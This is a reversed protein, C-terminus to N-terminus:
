WIRWTVGPVSEIEAENSFVGRIETNDSFLASALLLDPRYPMNEIPRATPHRFGTMWSQLGPFVPYELTGVHLGSVFYKLYPPLPDEDVPCAGSNRLREREIMENVYDEGLENLHDNVRRGFQNYGGSNIRPNQSIFNADATNSGGLINPVIHGRAEAYRNKSRVIRGGWPEVRPNTGGNKEPTYVILAYTDDRAISAGNLNPRTSATRRRQRQNGQQQAVEVDISIVRGDTLTLSRRQEIVEGDLGHPDIYNTPSNFVYRFLNADSGSLDIPDETIFRGLTSDYYRARYYNFGTELDLDRGTFGFRPSFLSNTQEVLKGFSNYRLHNLVVGSVNVIDRVTGQQDNLAWLLQGSLNEDVLIQDIGNGYIYRHTQVRNGDFTLAIHEGDYPLAEVQAQEVGSGDSDITKAIRHNAVDYVYTIQQTMVNNADRDVAQVLRNRYDWTYETISGSAIAQKRVLNGERDYSYTYVGDSSLRNNAETQYGANTRNGNADYSYSEDPQNASDAGILQRRDDYRYDTTGDVSTMQTIRNIDDYALTYDALSTNGRQHKLTKLRNASDFDYNSEAVLQTRTLDAYRVLRTMRDADDYEMNVRKSAVGNGSETLELLRNADDYSYLKTGKVAGAISDTTQILRNGDDYAYNMVVNPVGNTGANDVSVLRNAADYVYTYSSDPDSSIMRRGEDDYTHTVTRIVGDSTDLWQEATQWNNQDYVFTRRRGNRDSRMILNGVVDYEMRREYGLQNRDSVQRNLVDYDYTTTNENPDTISLLNGVKDYTKTTSKGLADTVQDPRNMADYRYRTSHGLADMNAILNDAADYFQKAMHNLPDTVTIRRNLADYSAKTVRNLPAITEILNDEADYSMTSTHNLADSVSIRRNLADYTYATPHTLPDITSVVNGVLDYITRTTHILADTTSVQRNRNDYEYTTPHNLRDRREIVNGVKDYTTKTIKDRPDIVQTLRGLDDYRYETRHGNEDIQALLQDAADYEFRKVQGLADVERIKSGRIDYFYHTANGNGDTMQVLQGDAGYQQQTKGGDPAITEVRRGRGDYRYQTKRGLADIMAVQRGSFDYEYRMVPSTLVGAGDPDPRNVKVLHNMKDYENRTVNGRADTVTLQNGDADYTYTTIPSTLVGAGDPDAETVKELRNQADYLYETRHGNENIVATQNGALDYEYQVNAEDVTGKAYTTKVLRGQPDYDYDTIRGLPDVETDLQGKSTYTYTTTVDDSGGVQGVVRTMSNRLGTVPDITYITKRGLEDTETELQNFVSDYTMTRESASRQTNNL